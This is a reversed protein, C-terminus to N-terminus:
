AHSYRKIAVLVKDYDKPHVKGVIVQILRVLGPSVQPTAADLVIVVANVPNDDLYRGVAALTDVDVLHEPRQPPGGHDSLGTNCSHVSSSSFVM